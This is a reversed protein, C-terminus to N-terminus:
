GSADGEVVSLSRLREHVAIRLSSEERDLDTGLGVWQRVSITPGGRLGTVQVDAPIQELAAVVAALDATAPVQVNVEALTQTSRISSNRITESALKENPIVLRDDNRTRLWTYTLGIEEVVGSDGGIAVEDGLRLPQAFAILLGAIFNGLTRQAAFGVVLGVIASSALIAGALARIEPIVLLASFVGVFIVGGVIARRLVGYRTAAEATLGRRTIRVDIVKAAVTTIVIVAAAIVLHEWFTSV